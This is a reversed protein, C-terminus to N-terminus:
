QELMATLDDELARACTGLDFGAETLRATTDTRPIDTKKAMAAALAEAPQHIDFFECTDLIKAEASATDTLICPLGAAQAEVAVFPLGEHLSPLVLLDAAQMIDAVDGRQGLFRIADSLGTEEATQRVADMREGQGVLLLVSDPHTRHFVAFARVLYDQNKVASFAGVHLVCFGNIGLKRRMEERKAGDFRYRAVDVGNYIIDTQGLRTPGFLWRAADQSCACLKDAVTTVFPRSLRHLMHYGAKIVPNKTDKGTAHSHFVVKKFGAHKALYLEFPNLVAKNLYLVDYEGALKRLAALRQFFHKTPPLRHITGIKEVADEYKVRSNSTIFGIQSHRFHSAFDLQFKTGGRYEATLYGFLIKM